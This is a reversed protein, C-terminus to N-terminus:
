RNNKLVLPLAELLDTATMPARTRTAFKAALGHVAVAKGVVQLCEKLNTPKWSALMSGILGALIDGTGATALESGGNRDTILSGDPSAILTNHGKLVVIVHFHKAIAIATGKRDGNKVPFGLKAAEGEHPTIVTFATDSNSALAMADSDLVLYRSEPFTFGRPLKPAGSGIVIADGAFERAKNLPVVDPYANLVLETATKSLSVYNIYGAGGRRAGGVCLVAAGPYKDSGAIVAVTGHSYKHSDSDRIPLHHRNSIAM